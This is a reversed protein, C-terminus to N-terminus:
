ILGTGLGPQDARIVSLYNRAIQLALNVQRQKPM